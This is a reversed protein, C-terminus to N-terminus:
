RRSRSSACPRPSTAPVTPRGCSSDTPAPRSAATARSRRAPPSRIGSREARRAACELTVGDEGAAVTFTAADGSPEGSVQPAPPPTRDVTFGHSVPAGSVNGPGTPRVTLTFQGDTLPGLTVPSECPQYSVGDLACEIFTDPEDTGVTFTPTDDRTLTPGDIAATPGNPHMYVTVPASSQSVNGADDKTIATFVHTGTALEAIEYFWGGGGETVIEAPGLLQGNDYVDVATMRETQGRLMVGGERLVTGSDPETITPREPSTTDITFTYSDPEGAQMGADVARVEFVWQGPGVDVLQLPSTCSDKFPDPTAGVLYRRCQFTAAPDDATFEFEPLVSNSVPPPHKTITAVPPTDVRITRTAPESVNGAEDTATVSLVNTGEALDDATGDWNGIENVSGTGVVRDSVKITITTFEEGRGSVPVSTSPHVSNEAPSTIQPAAPRTTDIIFSRSATDIAQGDILAAVEFSYSEDALATPPRYVGANCPVYEGIVDGPGNVRCRFETAQASSFTFQPRNDNTVGAPGSDILLTYELEFAGADCARGQPRAVGRQDAPQCENPKLNVAPSDNFTPVVDTGGGRNELKGSLGADIDQVDTPQKFGCDSGSEVNYGDSIPVPGGCNWRNGGVENDAVISSGIRFAGTAPLAIGGIGRDTGTNHAVTVASLTVSDLPHGYSILGGALRATNFAITSNRVTLQASAGGDGGFNIIGGGDGGGDTARNSDILSNQILMSGNRNAVGGGSYALGDTVRVRDLM